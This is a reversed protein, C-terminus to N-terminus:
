IILQRRFEWRLSLRSMGLLFRGLVVNDHTIPFDLRILGTESELDKLLTPIDNAKPSGLRKQLLPDAHNIYSSIPAGQPNVIVAYVVDRQTSVERTYDNLLLVDFGLIADPSVLSILRGLARGREVVQEEHFRSSTELFYFTNAAMTAALITLVTLTFKAGLSLRM